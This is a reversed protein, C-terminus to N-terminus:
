ADTISPTSSSSRSGSAVTPSTSDPEPWKTGGPIPRPSDHPRNVTRALPVADARADIVVRSLVELTRDQFPDRGPHRDRYATLAAAKADQLAEIEPLFARFVLNVLRIAEAPGHREYVHFRRAFHKLRGPPEDADGVAWLNVTFLAQPWGDAGLSIAVIHATHDPFLRVTHIHGAEHTAGPHAHFYFQCRSRRDFVGYEGPYLRWAERPQDDCLLDIVTEGRRDLGTLLEALQVAAPATV